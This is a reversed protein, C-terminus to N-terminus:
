TRSKARRTQERRVIKKMRVIAAEHRDIYDKSYSKKVDDWTPLTDDEPDYPPVEPKMTM